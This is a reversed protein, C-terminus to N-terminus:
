FGIGLSIGYVMLTEEEAIDVVFEPAISYKGGIHFQYAVGTRFIFEREHKGKEIETGPALIIQWNGFPHIFLSALGVWHEFEGGAYEIIGGLGIMQNFRYEYDAGISFGHEDSGEQTNGLFLALHHRHFSHEGDGHAEDAIVPPSFFVV